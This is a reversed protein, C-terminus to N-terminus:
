PPSAERAGEIAKDLRERRGPEREKDRNSELKTIIEKCEKDTLKNKEKSGNLFERAHDKVKDGTIYPNDVIGSKIFDKAVESRSVEPNFVPEIIYEWILIIVAIIGLAIVILWWVSISIEVM